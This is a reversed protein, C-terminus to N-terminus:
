STISRLARKIVYLTEPTPSEKKWRKCLNEVWVPDSKAADNLWNGLSDRVYKAPDSRLPELISLGLAPKKKLPELHKCWVGRPRTLECAFRRLNEEPLNSWATLLVIAQELNEAVAPRVVMWALERVGFHPDNAFPRIAAFREELSPFPTAGVIVAGWNRVLDSSHTALNGFAKKSTAQEGLHSQLVGGILMMAKIATLKALGKRAAELKPVCEALGMEPLVSAALRFQDVALCEVLNATSLTGAELGRLIAPGIEAIRRAGKRVATM